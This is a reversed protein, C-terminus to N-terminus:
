YSNAESKDTSCCCAVAMHQQEKTLAPTINFSSFIANPCISKKKEQFFVVAGSGTVNLVKFRRRHKEGNVPTM